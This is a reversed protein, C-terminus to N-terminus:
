HGSAKFNGAWARKGAGHGPGHGKRPIKRRPYLSDGDCEIAVGGGTEVKSSWTLKPLGGRMASCRSVGAALCDGEFGGRTRVTSQAASKKRKGELQEADLPSRIRLTSRILKGGCITPAESDNQGPEGFHVVVDSDRTARSAAVNFRQKFVGPRAPLAAGRGAGYGVLSIFVVRENGDGQFTCCERLALRPARLSRASFISAPALNQRGGGGTKRRRGASVVGFSTPRAAGETKQSIM